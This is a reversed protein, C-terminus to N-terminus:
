SSGHATAEGALTGQNGSVEAAPVSGQSNTHLTRPGGKEYVGRSDKGAQHRCGLNPKSLAM